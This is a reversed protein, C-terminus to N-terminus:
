AAAAAPAATSGRLILRTPLLVREPVDEGSALQTVVIPAGDGPVDREGRPVITGGILPRQGEAPPVVAVLDVAVPVADENLAEAREHIRQRLSEINAGIM